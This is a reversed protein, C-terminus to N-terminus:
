QNIDGIDLTRYYIGCSYNFGTEYVIAIKGNSFKAIDTYSCYGVADGAVHNAYTFQFFKAWTAGDDNSLRIKGHRRSVTTTYGPNTFLLRGKGGTGNSDYYFISAQCVPETLTYDKTVAGWTAGGDSSISVNRHESASGSNYSRMNLMLKGDSLEVVSAENTAMSPVSGGVQWTIGNDDSYIVHSSNQTENGRLNHNCAVVLRGPYASNRQMVIGHVPGTAYWRWESRVVSSTINSPTSWTAGEDDSYATYVSIDGTHGPNYCWVLVVRGYQGVNPLYIPCPNRSRNGASVPEGFIGDTDHVTILPLWTKGGDMSRKLVININGADDYNNVRGEAFVLVVDRKTIVMTPIRYFAIQDTNPKYAQSVFSTLSAFPGQPEDVPDVPPDVPPVVPKTPDPVVSKGEDGGCAALSLLAVIIPIWIKLKM